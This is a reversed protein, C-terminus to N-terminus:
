CADDAVTDVCGILVGRVGRYVVRYCVRDVWGILVGSDVGEIM